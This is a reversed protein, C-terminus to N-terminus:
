EANLSDRFCQNDKAYNQLLVLALWGKVHGGSGQNVGNVKVDNPVLPNKLYIQVQKMMDLLYDVGVSDEGTRNFIEFVDRFAAVQEGSRTGM